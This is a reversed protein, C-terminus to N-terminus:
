CSVPIAGYIFERDTLFNDLTKCPVARNDARIASVVAEASSMRPWPVAVLSGLGNFVFVM